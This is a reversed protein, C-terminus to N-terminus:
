IFIMFIIYHSTIYHTIYHSTIHHSTHAFRIHAQRIEQSPAQRCTQRKCGVFSCLGRAGCLLACCVRAVCFLVVCVCSSICPLDIHCFCSFHPPTPTILNNKPNRCLTFPRAKSGLWNWSTYNLKTRTRTNILLEPSLIGPVNNIMQYLLLNFM